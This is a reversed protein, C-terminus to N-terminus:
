EKQEEFEVTTNADFKVLMKGSPPKASLFQTVVIVGSPKDDCAVPMPRVVRLDSFQKAITKGRDDVWEVPAARKEAINRALTQAEQFTLKGTLLTVMWRAPGERRQVFRNVCSAGSALQATFLLLLAAAWRTM